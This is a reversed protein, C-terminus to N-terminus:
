KKHGGKHPHTQDEDDHGKESPSCGEPGNGGGNNCKPKPTKTPKQTPTDTPTDTVVPPTESPDVGPTSTSEVPPTNTSTPEDTPTPSSPIETPITIPCIDWHLTYEEITVCVYGEPCNLNGFDGPDFEAFVARSGWAIMLGLFLFIVNRIMRKSKM